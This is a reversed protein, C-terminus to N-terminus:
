HREFRWRETFAQKGPDRWLKNEYRISRAHQTHYIVAASRMCIQHPEAQQM